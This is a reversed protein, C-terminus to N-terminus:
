VRVKMLKKFTTLDFDRYDRVRFFHDETAFQKERRVMEKISEEYSAKFIQKKDNDDLFMAGRLAAGWIIAEFHFTSIYDYDTSLVFNAPQAYYRIKVTYTADPVPWLEFEMGRDIYYDPAGESTDISVSSGAELTLARTNYTADVDTETLMGAERSGLRVLKKSGLWMELHGLYDSPLAYTATAASTSCTAEVYLYKFPWKLAIDTRVDNIWGGIKTSSLPSSSSTGLDSRDLYDSVRDIIISYQM